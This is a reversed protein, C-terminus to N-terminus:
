VRAACKTYRIVSARKPQYGALGGPLKRGTRAADRMVKLRQGVCRERRNGEM